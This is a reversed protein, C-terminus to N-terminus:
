KGEQKFHEETGDLTPQVYNLSESAKQKQVIANHEAQKDLLEQEEKKLQNLDIAAAGGTLYHTVFKHIYELM